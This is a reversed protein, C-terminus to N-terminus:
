MEGGSRRRRRRALSGTPLWHSCSRAVCGGRRGWDHLLAGRWREPPAHWSAPRGHRRWPLRQARRRRLPARPPAASTDSRRSPCPCRRQPGQHPPMMAAPHPTMAGCELTQTYAAKPARREGRRVPGADGATRESGGRAPAARLQPSMGASRSRRSSATGRLTCVPSRRACRRCAPCPGSSRAARGACAAGRLHSRKGHRLQRPCKMRQCSGAAGRKGGRQQQGRRPAPKLHMWKSVHVPRM